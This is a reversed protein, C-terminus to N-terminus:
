KIIVLDPLTITEKKEKISVDLLVEITKSSNVSASDKSLAYIKYKGKRLFDFQYSGDYSTKVTNGIGKQDGYVIYVTEGQGYYEANLINFYANYDKIFVKGQITAFGGEGPEKTCSTIAFLVCLLNSFKSYNIFSFKRNSRM